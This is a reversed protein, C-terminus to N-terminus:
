LEPLGRPWPSMGVLLRGEGGRLGYNLYRPVWFHLSQPLTENILGMFYGKFSGWPGKHKPFM